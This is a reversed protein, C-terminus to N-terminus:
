YMDLKQSSNELSDLNLVFKQKLSVPSDLESHNDLQKQTCRATKEQNQEKNKPSEPSMSTRHVDKLFDQEQLSKKSTNSHIM